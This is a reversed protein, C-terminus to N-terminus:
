FCISNPFGPTIILNFSKFSINRVLHLLITFFFYYLISVQCINLFEPPSVKHQTPNNYKSLYKSPTSSHNLFPRKNKCQYRYQKTQEKDGLNLINDKGSSTMNIFCWKQSQSMSAKLVHKIREGERKLINVPSLM